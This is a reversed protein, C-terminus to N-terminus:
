GHAVSPTVISSPAGAPDFYIGAGPRALMVRFHTAILTNESNDGRFVIADFDLVRPASDFPVGDVQGWYDTFTTSARGSDDGGGHEEGDVVINELGLWNDELNPGGTLTLHVYLHDDGPIRAIELLAIRAHGVDHTEGVLQIGVGQGGNGWLTNIFRVYSPQRLSSSYLLFGTTVTLALALVAIVVKYRLTGRHQGLGKELRPEEQEEQEVRAGIM